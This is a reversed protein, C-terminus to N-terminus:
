PSLRSSAWGTTSDASREFLIRDHIRGVRGQWFEIQDCSIRWGGWFEPRPISESAEFQRELEKERTELLARSEVKSSQNNSVWAGIQSVRPRTAFYADSEEASTREARGEIRVQREKWYFTISAWQNETLNRSKRSNYNTYFVFGREDFAKLLVIRASPRGDLGATGVCMANAEHESVKAATLWEDFLLLPNAAHKAADDLTSSAYSLRMDAIDSNVLQM